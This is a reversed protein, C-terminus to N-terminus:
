GNIFGSAKRQTWGRRGRGEQAKCPVEPVGEAEARALLNEIRSMRQELDATEIAHLQLNM